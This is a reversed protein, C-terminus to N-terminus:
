PTRKDAEVLRKAIWAVVPVAVSNGLQRYRQTDSIPKGDAGHTTHGDPFGQLRECETPTLRRVAYGDMMADRNTCGITSTRETSINPRTRESGQTQWDFAIIPTGRGTGDESADAGEGTLTHTVDGTVCVLNYDDEQRRGPPNVGPKAAVGATLTAATDPAYAILAGRDSGNQKGHSAPNDSGGVLTPSVDPAYAVMPKSSGGPGTRLSYAPEGAEGGELESGDERGRPAVPYVFVAPYGQGPKGGGATSLTAVDTVRIEGRQNEHFAVVGQACVEREAGNSTAIIQGGRPTMIVVPEDLTSNLSKAYHATLTGSKLLSTDRRHKITM